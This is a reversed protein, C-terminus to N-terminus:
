KGEESPSDGPKKSGEKRFWYDESGDLQARALLKDVKTNVEDTTNKIDQVIERMWGGTIRHYFDKIKTIM